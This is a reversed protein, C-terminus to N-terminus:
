NERLVDELRIGIIKELDIKAVNLNRQLDLKTVQEGVWLKYYKSYDDAKMVNQRYDREALQYSTYADQTIEIQLGVKQKALLYDEYKTLVDAKIQRFKDNKNAQAILYNERAIRVNNGNRSIIDFPISIGFNYKPYYIPNSVGNTSGAASKNISFENINGQASIASLWTGKALRVQYEAINVQRDSIEYAPNNMALQVLRERIDFGGKVTDTFNYNSRANYQKPPNVQSHALNSLILLFILTKKM